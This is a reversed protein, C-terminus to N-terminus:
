EVALKQVATGQPTTIRVIYIGKALGALDLVCAQAGGGDLSLVTAGTASVVEVGQVGAECRVTATGRAPNPTVSWSVTEVDDIGYTALHIHLTDSWPSWQTQAFDCRARVYVDYRTNRDLNQILYHTLSTTAVTGEGPPTGEPGYSIEYFDHNDDQQWYVIAATASSALGAPQYRVEPAVCSDEGFELIPYILTTHGYGCPEDHWSDGLSTRYKRHEYPIHYYYPDTPYAGHWHHTESMVETSSYCMTDKHFMKMSMYFTGAIDITDNFYIERFRGIITSREHLLWMPGRLLDDALSSATRLENMNSDFLTVTYLRNEPLFPENASWGRWYISDEIFSIGIIHLTDDSHRRCAFEKSYIYVPECVSTNFYMSDSADFVYETHYRGINYQVGDIVPMGNRFDEFAYPYYYYRYRGYITDGDNAAAATLCHMLLFALLLIKKM